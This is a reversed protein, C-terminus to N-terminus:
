NMTIPKRAVENGNKEVVCTYTGTGCNSMDCSISVEKENKVVRHFVKVKKDNYIKLVVKEEAPNKLRFKIINAEPQIVWVKFIQEPSGTSTDSFTRANAAIMLFIMATTLIATKM